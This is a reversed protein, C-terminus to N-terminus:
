RKCSQCLPVEIGGRIKQRDHSEQPCGKHIQLSCFHSHLKFRKWSHPQVKLQELQQKAKCGAAPLLAATHHQPSPHISPRATHKPFSTFRFSNGRSPLLKWAGTNSAQACHIRTLCLHLTGM